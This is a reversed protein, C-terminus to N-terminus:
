LTRGCSHCAFVSESEVGLVKLFSSIDRESKM